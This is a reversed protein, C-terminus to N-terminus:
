APRERRQFHCADTRANGSIFIWQLGAAKHSLRGRELSNDLAKTKLKVITVAFSM